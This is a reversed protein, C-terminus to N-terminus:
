QAVVSQYMMQYTADRYEMRRTLTLRLREIYAFVYRSTMTGNATSECAIDIATGPLTRLMMKAPYRKGSECVVHESSLDSRDAQHWKQITFTTRQQPKIDRLLDSSNLVTVYDAPEPEKAGYLYSQTKAPWPYAGGLTFGGFFPIGKAEGEHFCRVVSGQVVTCRTKMDIIESKGQSDVLMMADTSLREFPLKDDLSLLQARLEDPMSVLSFDADLVADSNAFPRAPRPPASPAAGGLAYVLADNRVQEPVKDLTARLMFEAFCDDGAGTSNDALGAFRKEGDPVMAAIGNATDVLAREATASRDDTLRAKPVQRAEAQLGLYFTQYAADLDVNAPLGPRRCIWPMGSRVFRQRADDGIRLLNRAMACHRCTASVARNLQRQLARDDIGARITADDEAAELWKRVLANGALEPDVGKRSLAAETMPHSYAKVKGSASEAGIAHLTLATCLTAFVLQLSQRASTM